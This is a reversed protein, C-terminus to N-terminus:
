DIKKENMKRVSSIFEKLTKIKNAKCYELASNLSMKVREATYKVTKILGKDYKEKFLLLDIGSITYRKSSNDKGVVIAPLYGEKIYKVLTQRAKIGLFEQAQRASYFKNPNIM